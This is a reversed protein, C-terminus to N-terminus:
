DCDLIDFDVVGAKIPVNYHGCGESDYSLWYSGRQTYIRLNSNRPLSFSKITQRGNVMYLKLCVDEKPITCKHCAVLLIISLLFIIKKM